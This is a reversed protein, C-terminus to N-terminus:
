KADQTICQAAIRASNLCLPIGGGPHVSGGVFYLGRINSHFNPHRLFASFMNNSATGYLSGAYSGTRAQILAPTLIEECEIFPAVDMKLCRSLKALIKQKTKEIESGEDQGDWRPANVMVFWNEKGQPADSTVVKSTINVYVTLDDALQFNQFLGEFEKQYDNSFFLNHVDMAPFSRSMGWYFIIASSSREQNLVKEPFPLGKLLHHYTFYADVNSVVVDSNIQVGNVEVGVARNNEVVIQDVPANLHVKVGCRVMLEGLARTIQHMGEKPMYAGIGHELHPIMSMMAPTRYPNSGNYTAYRNMLQVTKPNKFKRRNYQNLSGWIPMLPLLSLSRWFSLKGFPLRHLSSELFVERTHNYTWAARRFYRTVAQPSEGLQDAIEQAWETPNQKAVLRTGDEWFYHAISTLRQYEFIPAMPVRALAFLEEVLHPLTFLSPGLDFRFGNIQQAHLKGGLHDTAEFVEVEFGQCSLRIATAMGGIGAGIVVAKKM